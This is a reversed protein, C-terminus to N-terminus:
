AAGPTVKGCARMLLTSGVQGSSYVALSGVLSRAGGAQTM